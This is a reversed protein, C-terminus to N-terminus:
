REVAPEMGRREGQKQEVEVTTEGNTTTARPRAAAASSPNGSQNWGVSRLALVLGAALFFSGLYAIVVRKLSVLLGYDRWLCSILVVLAALLAITHVLRSM